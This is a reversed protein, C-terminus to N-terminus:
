RVRTDADDGERVDGARSSALIRASCMDPFINEVLAQGVYKRGRFVTFVHGKKVGDELGVSLMVINAENDVALVKAHMAPAPSSRGHVLRMVHGIDSAAGPGTQPLSGARGPRRPPPAARRVQAPLSVARRAGSAFGTEAAPGSLLPSPSPPSPSPSPSPAGSQGCGSAILLAALFAAAGTMRSM